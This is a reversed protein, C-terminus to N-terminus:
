EDISSSEHECEQGGILGGNLLIASIILAILKKITIGPCSLNILINL